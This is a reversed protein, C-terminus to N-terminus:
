IHSNRNMRFLELLSSLNDIFKNSCLNIWTLLSSVWNLVLSNLMSIIWSFELSWFSNSCIVSSCMCSSVISAVNRNFSRFWWIFVCDILVENNVQVIWYGFRDLSFVAVCGLHSSDCCACSSTCSCCDFLVREIVSLVVLCLFTSWEERCRVLRIKDLAWLFCFSVIWYVRWCRNVFWAWYATSESRELIWWTVVFLHGGLCCHHLICVNINQM